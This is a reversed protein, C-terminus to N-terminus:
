DSDENIVFNGSDTARLKSATVFGTVVNEPMNFTKRKKVNENTVQTGKTTRKPVPKTTKRSKAENVVEQIIDEKKLLDVNENPIEIEKKICVPKIKEPLIRDGRTLVFRDTQTLLKQIYQYNDIAKDLKKDENDSLLMVIRGQRKRGTRGM